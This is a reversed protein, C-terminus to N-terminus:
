NKCIKIIGNRVMKILGAGGNHGIGRHLDDPLLLMKRGNQHHHWSYGSPTIDYGALKNALKSDSAREGTMGPVDITKTSFNDFKPYGKSDFGVGNPYLKHREYWKNGTVPNYEPHQNFYYKGSKDYGSPFRTNEPILEDPIGGPPIIDALSEGAAEVNV